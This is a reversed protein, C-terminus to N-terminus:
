LARHGDITRQGLPHEGIPEDLDDHCSSAPYRDMCERGVHPAPTGLASGRTWALHAWSTARRKCQNPHRPTVVFTRPIAHTRVRLVSVLGMMFYPIAHSM